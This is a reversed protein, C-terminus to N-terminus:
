NKEYYDRFFLIEHILLFIKYEIKALESPPLYQLFNIIIEIKINSIINYLM